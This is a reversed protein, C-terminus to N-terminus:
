ALERRLVGGCRAPSAANSRDDVVRSKSLHLGNGGVESGWCAGAFETASRQVRRAKYTVITNYERWDGDGANPAVASAIRM